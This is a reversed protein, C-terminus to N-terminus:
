MINWDFAEIIWRSSYANLIKGAEWTLQDTLLYKTTQRIPDVSEVVRHKGVM